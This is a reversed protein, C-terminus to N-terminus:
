SLDFSLTRNNYTLFLKMNLMLDKNSYIQIQYKQATGVIPLQLMKCVYLCVNM